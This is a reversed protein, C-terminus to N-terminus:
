PAPENWEDDAGLYQENINNRALAKGGALWEQDLDKEAAANEIAFERLVIADEIKTVVAPKPEAYASLLERNLETPLQNVAARLERGHEALIPQKNIVIEQTQSEFVSALVPKFQSASAM